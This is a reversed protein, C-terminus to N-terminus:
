GAWMLGSYTVYSAYRHATSSHYAYAMCTPPPPSCSPPPPLLKIPTTMRALTCRSPVPGPHLDPTCPTPSLSSLGYRRGLPWWAWSCGGVEGLHQQRARVGGYRAQHGERTEDVVAGPGVCDVEGPHVGGGGAQLLLLKPPCRGRDTTPLLIPAVLCLTHTHCPHPPPPTLHHPPPITPRRPPPITPPPPPTVTSM